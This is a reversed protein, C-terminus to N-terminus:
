SAHVESYRTAAALLVSPLYRLQEAGIAGPTLGALRLLQADTPQDTRVPRRGAPTGVRHQPVDVRERTRLHHCTITAQWTNVAERREDSDAVWQRARQAALDPTTWIVARAAIATPYSHSHVVAVVYRDPQSATRTHTRQTQTQTPASTM